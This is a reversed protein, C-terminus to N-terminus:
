VKEAYWQKFISILSKIWATLGTLIHAHEAFFIFTQKIILIIDMCHAIM